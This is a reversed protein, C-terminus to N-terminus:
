RNLAALYEQVRPADPADPSRTLYRTFAERAQDLRGQQYYLLGVQRAVEVLDPELRAAREYAALARRALEDRDAAGRARQARLRHLDGYTLHALADMPSVALARDLQEQAARFRGVGLELRANERAVLAMVTEFDDTTKVTDPAAAAVAYDNAVLPALTAIREGLTGDTGLYFREIAGGVKAERRLREFTKPAEKPDYGARVLRRLAGVDADRELERGYGTVAAVYVATLRSGLITAATASLLARNADDTSLAPGITSPMALLADDLRGQLARRELAPRRSAQTLGRALITALQAENELRALLGTHVYIRGSPLVFASITPDRVVVVAPTAAREGEIQLAATVRELLETLAQDELVRARALLTHEHADASVAAAPARGTACSSTLVAVLLAALGWARTM